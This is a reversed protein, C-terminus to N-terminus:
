SFGYIVATFLKIPKPGPCLLLRNRRPRHGGRLIPRSHCHPHHHWPFQCIHEAVLFIYKYNKIKLLESIRYSKNLQLKNFILSFIEDM